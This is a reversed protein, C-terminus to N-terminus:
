SAMASTMAEFRGAERKAGQCELQPLAPCRVRPHAIGSWQPPLLLRRWPTAEATVSAPCEAVAAPPGGWAQFHARVLPDGRVGILNSTQAGAELWGGPPRPRLHRM